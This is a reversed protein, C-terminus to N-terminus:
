EFTIIIENKAISITGHAIGVVNALCHQIRGKVMGPDITHLATTTEMREPM